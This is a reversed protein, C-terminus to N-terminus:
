DHTVGACPLVTVTLGGEQDVAAPKLEQPMRFLFPLADETLKDSVPFLSACFYMGEASLCRPFYQRRRGVMFLCKCSMQQDQLNEIQGGPKGEWVENTEEKEEEEETEEWDEGEEKKRGERGGKKRGKKRAASFNSGM